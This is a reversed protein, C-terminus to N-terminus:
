QVEDRSDWDWRIDADDVPALDDNSRAGVYVSYYSEDTVPAGPWDNVMTWAILGGQTWLTANPGPWRWPKVELATWARTLRDHDVPTVNAAGLGLQTGFVAEVLTFHWLFEDLREGTETWDAGPDNEWEWVMPNDGDDRVGWLWVSQNEVGVLLVDGDLTRQSPVENQRMVPSDWRAVQRHWDVLAVPLGNPVWHQVDRAPPGLWATLFREPQDPGFVAATRVEDIVGTM